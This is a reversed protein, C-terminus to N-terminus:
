KKKDKPASPTPMPMPMPMPAVNMQARQLYKPRPQRAICYKHMHRIETKNNNAGGVGGVGV